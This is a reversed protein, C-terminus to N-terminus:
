KTPPQVYIKDGAYPPKIHNPYPTSNIGKKEPRRYTNRTWFVHFNIYENYYVPNIVISGDGMKYAPIGQFTTKEM